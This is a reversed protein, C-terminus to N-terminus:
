TRNDNSDNIWNVGTRIRRITAVHVNYKGAIAIATVGGVGNKAPKPQKRIWDVNEQTLKARGHNQGRRPRALGNAWSHKANESFSMWELNDVRNNYKDGDIHNVTKKNVIDDNPIFWIAIARHIPINRSNIKIVRYGDVTFWYNVPKGNKLITGNKFYEYNNRM